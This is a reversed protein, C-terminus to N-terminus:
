FSITIRKLQFSLHDILIVKKVSRGSQEKKNNRMGGIKTDSEQITNWIKFAYIWKSKTEIEKM